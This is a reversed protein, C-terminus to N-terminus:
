MKYVELTYKTGVGGNSGKVVVNDGTLDIAYYSGQATPDTFNILINGSNDRIKMCCYTTTSEGHMIFLNGSNVPINTNFTDTYYQGTTKVCTYEAVKELTGGGM